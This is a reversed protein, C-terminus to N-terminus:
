RTRSPLELAFEAGRPERPAFRIQGGHAEAIERAISLGLGSGAVGRSRSADARFFREFMQDRDAPAVGPGQDSVTVSASGNAAATRVSVVGGDPSFKVANEILNGLAQRLREPDGTVGASSGDVEITISRRAALPRLAGGANAAVAGLDVPETALALRGQDVSALTLLDDVTRTLRDVEDRVSELADRAAPSLEDARLSVDLESRMAALPSRLEHSADDVLRRQQGIAARIRALMANLTQALHAVEDRTGPDALQEDLREIEIREAARTMREVPRLARRAIWWGGLATLVLAAPLALILLVVVRHVSSEVPAMSEAAVVIAPKGRRTTRKAIVRFGGRAGARRVTRGRGAHAFDAPGLLPAKAVPDGYSLVVTGAPALVQSAAREGSLVTASVDHFELPGEVRYGTEIQGLAARLRNDISATLDTRLRVAVFAGVAAIILALLLAYWATM